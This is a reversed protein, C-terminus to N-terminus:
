VVFSVLKGKVFIEKKVKKGKLFKGVNENEKALKIAEKEAIEKDVEITGRLKGNIQIALTIKDEQVLKPDFKPWTTKFISEKNGMMEWLEESLHPTIPALLIVLTEFLDKEIEKKTVIVNLYEMLASIATNFHFNEFDKTVKKITKHQLSELEKGAKAPVLITNKTTNSANKEVLSYVKQLFRHMGVIGRDTWEKDQEAPGMFLEYARVSDTGYKKVLEDPSIVNGKSKSMKAGKYYIMGQNFLKLFPERFNILKLDNLTKTIFRAYMLHIIAHEIGGVYQDVPLWKDVQKKDFIEKQNHSDPYRLFYWASDVFTAMTDTEREAPIGCKPCKTKVFKEVKALPSRGDGTPKFDDLEPLKVPLDKEPVSVAGCKKCHIIPIPTGWYRQRSILWDHLKYNITEKGAKKKELWQAIKKIANKSDLGTFEGSNILNGYETHILIDKYFADDSIWSPWSYVDQPKEPVKENNFTAGYKDILDNTEENLEMEEIKGDKHKFIFYFGKDTSFENWFGPKMKERVIEKYDEVKKKPIKIKLFGKKTKELIEVDIGKLDDESIGMVFSRHKEEKKFVVPKIPLNYKKAFEFDRQDHAPVAVVAGTGYSALVYDAVWVPIKKNDLPNVVYSGTFVGTKEKELSTREIESEKIAKECYKEVAKKNDDTTLKTVLPHEPALVLYTCGFLTDARTTFVPIECRVDSMQCRVNDESSQKTIGSKAAVVKFVVEVGESRGIWNKQMTKVKEPWDLGDLEDILEDATETIKFFWQKFNKKTVETGCRECGGDVVEENALATKCDPCWNAPAAKRYALDKKYLQLFIWQTWKYYEPDSSNIELDWDYMSGIEELQRKFNKISKETNIKPHVGEKIAANEAPLGFADWGMPHLVEYGQIKKYRSWVDSMVYGSWHGVHLGEGSPYPFMDLCYYRKKADLDVKNVGKEKWAKQWKKEIKQPNYNAM